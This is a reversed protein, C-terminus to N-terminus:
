SSRFPALRSGSRRSCESRGALRRHSRRHDENGDSIGDAGGYLGLVPRRRKIDPMFGLHRGMLVAADAGGRRAADVEALVDSAQGSLKVLLPIHISRRGYPAYQTAESLAQVDRVSGVTSLQLGSAGAELLRNVTGRSVEPIRVVAPLRRAFAYRVLIRAQSESLQSHELDILAFDFGADHVLDLVETSFLKVFMGLLRHGSLLRACTTRGM